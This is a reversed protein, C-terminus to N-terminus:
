FRAPIAAYKYLIKLLNSETIIGILKKDNDIVPLCGYKNTMMIEIADRLEIDPKISTVQKLMADKVLIKSPNTFVTNIIERLTILGILKKDKDIVPLNRIKEEQMFKSAQLITDEEYLLYPETDMIDKVYMKKM